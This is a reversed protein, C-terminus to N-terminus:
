VHAMSQDIAVVSGASWDVVKSPTSTTPGGTDSSSLPMIPRASYYEVAAQVFPLLQDVDWKERRAQQKFRFFDEPVIVDALLGMFAAGTVQPDESDDTAALELLVFESMDDQCAYEEGNIEFVLPDENAARERKAIELQVRPM